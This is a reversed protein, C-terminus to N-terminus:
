IKGAISISVLVLGGIMSTTTRSKGFYDLWEIYIVGYCNVTGYVLFMVYFSSATVVWGWGGDPCTSTATPQQRKASKTGKKM